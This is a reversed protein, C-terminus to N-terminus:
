SQSLMDKVIKSVLSGEARGKIKPMLESMVRGMDKIDSAGMKEIVESAMNKIEQEPIQEPLYRKLIEIEQKEKKVLDDRKGKEFGSIAEKNKKINSLIVNLIEENILSSKKELEKESLDTKERSLHYRKEKEKNLIDAKLMRLVSVEIQKKEKLAQKFDTEIKKKLM